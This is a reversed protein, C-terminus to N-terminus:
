APVIGPWHPSGTRHCKTEDALRASKAGTLVNPMPWCVFSYKRSCRSVANLLRRQHNQGSLEIRRVVEIEVLAIKRMAEPYGLRVPLDDNM